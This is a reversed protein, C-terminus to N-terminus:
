GSTRAPRQPPEASAPPPIAGQPAREPHEALVWRRVLDIEDQKLQYEPAKHEAISSDGMLMNYVAIDDFLLESNILPLLNRPETLDLNKKADPPMHCKVCRHDLVEQIRRELPSMAALRAQHAKEAESQGCAGILAAFAAILLFPIVRQM